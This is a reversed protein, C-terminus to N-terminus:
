GLRVVIFRPESRLPCDHPPPEGYGYISTKKLLGDDKAAGGITCRVFSPMVEGDGMGKVFPCDSCRLVRTDKAKKM